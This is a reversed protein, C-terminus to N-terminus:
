ITSATNFCCRKMAAWIKQRAQGASWFRGLTEAPQGFNMLPAADGLATVATGVYPSISDGLLTITTFKPNGVPTGFIGHCSHTFLGGQPRFDAKDSLLVDDASNTGGETWNPDADGARAQIGTGWKGGPPVTIETRVILTDGTKVSIPLPDNLIVERMACTKQKQGKWTLQTWPGRNLSVAARYTASNDFEKQAESDNWSSYAQAFPFVLDKAPVKVRFWNQYTNKFLGKNDTTGNLALFQQNDAILPRDIIQVAPQVARPKACASAGMLLALSGLASMKTKFNLTM